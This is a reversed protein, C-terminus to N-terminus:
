TQAALLPKEVEIEQIEVPNTDFKVSYGHKKILKVTESVSQPSRKLLKGIQTQNYGKQLLEYVEKQKDSMEKRGMKRLQEKELEELEKTYETTLDSLYKAKKKEYSNILYESPSSFGFRKVKKTTRGVRIIPYKKYIKGTDQNVQHFKPKCKNINNQFDIGASEFSYHLLMRASKNLMSLYPLNFFIGINMSRFSQLVYTMMKSIKNQFDLSGLNAGAEEFIIIEGRQLEGKSLLKMASAVGFCINTTPFPKKFHYQYWLEAKRLDRYSKGSGTPGLEAGLVNKNNKILRSHLYRLFIEGEKGTKLEIAKGM